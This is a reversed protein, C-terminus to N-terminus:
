SDDTYPKLSAIDVPPMAEEYAAVQRALSLEAPLYPEAKSRVSYLHWQMAALCEMRQMDVVGV